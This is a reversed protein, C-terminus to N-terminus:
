EFIPKLGTHSGAAGAVDIGQRFYIASRDTVIFEIETQLKCLRDALLIQQCKTHHDTRAMVRMGVRLTDNGILFGCCSLRVGQAIAEIIGDFQCPGVTYSQSVLM